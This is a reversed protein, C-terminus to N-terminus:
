SLGGLYALPEGVFRGLQSEFVLKNSEVSTRRRELDVARLRDGEHQRAIQWRIFWYPAHVFPARFDLTHHGEPPRASNEPDDRAPTDSSSARGGPLSLGARSGSVSPYCPPSRPLVAAM